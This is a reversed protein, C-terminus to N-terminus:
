NVSDFNSDIFCRKSSTRYASLVYVIYMRRRERLYSELYGNVFRYLSM